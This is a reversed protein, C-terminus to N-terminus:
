PAEPLTFRITCGETVSTDIWIRGGLREVIKRCIALGIGIGPFQDPGHLRRFVQFVDGAYSPLIGIGHDAV